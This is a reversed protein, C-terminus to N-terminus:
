ASPPGPKIALQVKVRIPQHEDVLGASRGLHRPEAASCRATRPQAGAHRMPMHPRGRRHLFFELCTSRTHDPAAM